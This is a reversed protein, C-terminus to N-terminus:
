AGKYQYPKNWAGINLHYYFACNFYDTQIDSKDWHDKAIIALMRGLVDASQATYHKEYHYPNVQSHTCIAAWRDPHQDAPGHWNSSEPLAWAEFQVPGSLVTVNVSSGDERRVSFKWGDKAPFAAKLSNRIEAVQETTIYAM